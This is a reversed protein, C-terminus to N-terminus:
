GNNVKKLSEEMQKMMDDYAERSYITYAADKSKYGYNDFWACCHILDGEYKIEATGDFVVYRNSESKLFLDAYEDLLMTMINSM